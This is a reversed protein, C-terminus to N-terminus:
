TSERKYALFYALILVSDTLVLYSSSYMYLYQLLKLSLGLLVSWSIVKKHTLSDTEHAIHEYDDLTQKKSISFILCAPYPLLPDKLQFQM